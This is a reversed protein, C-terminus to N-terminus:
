LDTLVRRSLETMARRGLLATLLPTSAALSVDEVRSTFVARAQRGICRELWSMLRERVQYHEETPACSASSGFWLRSWSLTRRSLEDIGADEARDEDSQAEFVLSPSVGDDIESLTRRREM